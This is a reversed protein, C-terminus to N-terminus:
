VFLIMVNYIYIDSLLHGHLHGKVAKSYVPHSQDEMLGFGIARRRQM